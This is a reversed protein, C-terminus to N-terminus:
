KYMQSAKTLPRVWLYLVQCFITMSLSGLKNEEMMLSVYFRKVDDVCLLLLINESHWNLLM